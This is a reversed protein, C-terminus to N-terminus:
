DSRRQVPDWPVLNDVNDVDDLKAKQARPAKPRSPLESPGSSPGSPEEAEQARQFPEQLASLHLHFEKFLAVFCEVFRDEEEPPRRKM